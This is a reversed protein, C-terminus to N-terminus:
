DASRKELTEIKKVTQSTVFLRADRITSLQPNKELVKFLIDDELGKKFHQENCYGMYTSSGLNQCNRYECFSPM